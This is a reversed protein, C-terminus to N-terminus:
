KRSARFAKKAKGDLAAIVNVEALPDKSRIRFWEMLRSVDEPPLIKPVYLNLININAAKQDQSRARSLGRGVTVKEVFPYQVLIEQTIRTAEEDATLSDSLKKELASIQKNKEDLSSLTEQYVKSVIGEKLTHVDILNEPGQHV